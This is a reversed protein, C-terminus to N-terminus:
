RKTLMLCSVTADTALYRIRVRGRDNWFTQLAVKSALRQSGTHMLGDVGEFEYTVWFESGGILSVREIAELTRVSAVEGGSKLRKAAQTGATRPMTLLLGLLGVIGAGILYGVKDYRAANSMSFLALGLSIAIPLLAVRTAGHGSPLLAHYLAVEQRRLPVAEIPASVSPPEIRSPAPAPAANPAPAALPAPASVAAPAPALAIPPVSSPAALGGMSPSSIPSSIPSSVPQSAGEPVVIRVCPGNAAEWRELARVLADVSPYRDEMAPELLLDLIAAIAPDHTLHPFVDPKLRRIEFRAPEIGTILHLATAGLAYLDTTAFARAQFQEPAMYGFTGVVSSGGARPDLVAERVAGFDILVCDGNPRLVLNSPKIDRHYLPPNRAHLYGLPVLCSKMLWVVEPIPITGRVELLQQLSPGEIFEQVLYFAITEERRDVITETFEPVQAHHITKLTACEREFLEIQKTHRQKVLKLEKIARLQDSRQDRALYTRANGGEGLLRLLQYPGIERLM